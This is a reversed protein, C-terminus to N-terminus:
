GEKWTAFRPRRDWWAFWERRGMRLMLCHGTTLAPDRELRLEMGDRCKVLLRTAWRLLRTMWPFTRLIILEVLASQFEAAAENFTPRDEAM